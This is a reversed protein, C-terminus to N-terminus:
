APSVGYLTADLAKAIADAGVRADVDDTAYIPVYVNAHGLTPSIVGIDALYMVLNDTAM